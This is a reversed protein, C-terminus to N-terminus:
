DYRKAPPLWPRIEGIVEQMERNLEAAAKRAEFLEGAIRLCAMIMARPTELAAGSQMLERITTDVYKAVAQTEEPSTASRLSYEEGLITVRVPTRQKDSM